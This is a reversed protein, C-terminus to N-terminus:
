PLRYFWPYTRFWAAAGPELSIHLEGRDIKLRTIEGSAPDFKWALTVRVSPKFKKDIKTKGTNNIFYVTEPGDKWRSFRLGKSPRFPERRAMTRELVAPVPGAVMKGRGKHMPQVRCAGKQKLDEGIGKPPDGEFALHWGLESLKAVLVDAANSSINAVRPVFVVRYPMSNNLASVRHELLLDACWGLGALRSAEAHASALSSTPAYVLVDTDPTCHQAVGMLRRAYPDDFRKNGPADFETVGAVLLENMRTRPPVSPSGARVLRRGRLRRTSVAEAVALDSATASVDAVANSGRRIDAYFLDPIDPWSADRPPTPQWPAFAFVFARAPLLHAWAFAQQEEDAPVVRRRITVGDKVGEAYLDAERFIPSKAKGVAVLSVENSNAPITGKEFRLEPENLISVAGDFGERRVVKFTATTRVGDRVSFSSRTSYVTFDPSPERVFLRFYYDDGGAGIRDSVVVKYRGPKKFEYCGIPDCESQAVTGVYVTNTRDDWTQLLEGGSFPWWGRPAYLSVVPDLPSGLSRAEVDIIRTCPSEIDIEYECSGGKAVVGEVGLGGMGVPKSQPEESNVTKVCEPDTGKEADIKDIKECKVMYVFDERGRYLNDRVELVYDGSAPIEAEMVPDPRFADDDAFAVEDGDPGILRLVANFFGPVADGIYPLLERATLSFRYRDGKAFCFAFRDTEGPMIQGDLIVPFPTEVDTAPNESAAIRARRRAKAQKGAAVTRRHPPVYLPEEVHPASTVYLPHPASATSTYYIVLERCGPEADPAAAVTVIMKQRLSPSMQLANKPIFLDREVLSLQLADLEGLKRWWACERWETIHPDNPLPPEARNGKAISDLWKKLHQRQGATGPVSLGPVVEVSLVKVGKGSVAGDFVGWFNQGGVIFRNTTGAQLGAPYIYAIYPDAAALVAASLFVAAFITKKM